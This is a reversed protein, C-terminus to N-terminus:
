QGNALEKVFTDNVMKACDADSNIAGLDKMFKEVKNQTYPWYTYDEAKTFLKVNDKESPVILGKMMADFDAATMGMKDGMFKSAEAQNAKWYDIADYYSKIMAKVADPNKKIINSSAALADTILNPDDASSYLVTGGAKKAKSFYPDWICAADCQGAVFANGAQEITMDVIKVDKSSMGADDLLTLLFMHDVSYQQTAITKGKLDKISKIGKKAILGECGNSKDTVLVVNLDGGQAFPAITESSAYTCFDTKGGIFANSSETTSSFENITVDLGNKKFIGKEKALYFMENTPWSVTGLTIHTLKKGAEKTSSGATTSPASTPNSTNDAKSNSCASLSVVLAATLLISLMKKKM